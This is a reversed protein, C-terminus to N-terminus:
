RIRYFLSVGKDYEGNLFHERAEEIIAERGKQIGSTDYDVYVKYGDQLTKYWETVSQSVKAERKKYLRKRKIEYGLINLLNDDIKEQEFGRSYVSNMYVNSMMMKDLYDRYLKGENINFLGKKKNGVIEGTEYNIEQIKKKIKSAALSFASNLGEIHETITYYKVERNLKGGNWLLSNAADVERHPIQSSLCNNSRSLEMRAENPYDRIYWFVIYSNINKKTERHRTYFSYIEEKRLAHPHLRKVIDHIISRRIGLCNGTKNMSYDIRESHENFFKSLDPIREYFHTYKREERPKARSARRIVRKGGLEEAAVRKWYAYHSCFTKYNIKRSSLQCYLDYAETHELGRKLLALTCKANAQLLEIDTSCQIPDFKSVISDCIENIDNSYGNAINYSYVLDLYNKDFEEEQAERFYGKPHEVISQNSPIVEYSKSSDSWVSAAARGREYLLHVYNQAKRNLLKFVRERLYRVQVPKPNLEIVRENIGDATHENMQIREVRKSAVAKHAHKIGEVWGAHMVTIKDLYEGIHYKLYGELAKVIQASYIKLDTDSAYQLDKKAREGNNISNILASPDEFWVYVHYGANTEWVDVDIDLRKFYDILWVLKQRLGESKVQRNGAKVEKDDLDIFLRDALKFCKKLDFYGNGGSYLNSHWEKLVKSPIIYMGLDHISINTGLRKQIREIAEKYKKAVYREVFKLEGDELIFVDFVYFALNNGNKWFEPNKHAERSLKYGRTRVANKDSSHSIM